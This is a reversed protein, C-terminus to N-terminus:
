LQTERGQATNVSIIRMRHITGRTKIWGYFVVKKYMIGCFLRFTFHFIRFPKKM